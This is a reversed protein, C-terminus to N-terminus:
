QVAVEAVVPARRDTTPRCPRVFRVLEDASLLWRVTILVGVALSIFLVGRESGSSAADFDGDMTVAVVLIAAGFALLCARLLSRTGITERAGTGFCYCPTAQGRLIGRAILGVFSMSMALAIIGAVFLGDGLMLAAGIALEAIVTLAAIVPALAAPALDYTRVGGIFGRVDLLKALGSVVFVIAVAFRATEAAFEWMM